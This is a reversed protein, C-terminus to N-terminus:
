WEEQLAQIIPEAQAADPEVALAPINQSQFVQQLKACNPDAADLLRITRGNQSVEALYTGIVRGNVAVDEGAEVTIGDTRALSEILEHWIDDFLSLDLETPTTTDASAEFWDPNDRITTAQQKGILIRGLRFFHKAMSNRDSLNGVPIEFVEYGLNRLEERIERDRQQRNPDGHLHQSMGDLYICIGESRESPDSYFFDPTTTGLPKGLDIPHQALANPFGARKLMDRLITEKDNVPQASGEQEATPLQSPIDHSFTLTRGWDDLRQRAKHRNLHRHYHANRFSFLCDICATECSSPCHTVVDLAAEIVESWRAIIQEILGSGGPMPDYLLADVTEEGPHGVILVQLDEVEMDLVNSAGIRIAELLSYAQERNACAQLSLTDAIVDTFFGTPQVPQGCRELHEKAFLERDADSALPSRSQGCVVCVPYGLREGSRVLNAAGVNVLRLHVGRRLHITKDDWSYAKGGNHRPQEYGFLSVAMQFRYDEDDSIQSQHPLDVDCIPIARLSAVGLGAGTGNVPTGVEVVAENTVDVQFLTTQQQPELHFFRPIFRNSNAYILNGPVYERLAIASPRPLEFDPLWGGFQRPVQATALVSGVDLGYGPLFGEAALVSYTNTDDYGEAERKKRSQIGKLKKVLRDCRQRLAEEDPDLTGKGQRVEDLQKMQALAWQLRKWVRGIVESLQNGTQQIDRRLADDSVVNADVAPWGQGFIERVREFIIGEHKSIIDSLVNVDLPAKRVLRNDDFLYHKVQQPFCLELTEKVEQRDGATLQGGSRVLQNLITLVAAHVHKQVMLPNRLNFRPPSVVGQLLKLPDNYYARDHSAQRAYTLNVAMRHQRGARGARQKYNAPLPPVNRMLVSDLGGIDVGLELTSTCVLTNVLENDSKFLRELTEREPAPVQASHERPRLMAFQQDLVMLNYDDPNESEPQITGSCRWAMCAMKPTPRIHARRCTNCRYIDQHPVLRLKDADLQRVGTCGQVAKNRKGTLTVPVLLELDETLLRWLDDFFEDIIEKDIGWRRAVQRPLTDGRDSLWQQVRSTSDGAERRLKIGKPIGPILPMYGRQIEFDGLAWFRSFIRGDRDLLINSRRTVDLLSAVGEVLTDEPIGLLQAWKTFFPKDKTLGAYEIKLRGWPELGIRQRVGTTIERLIQIRLFHRREENHKVGEAEKRAVRWVEPILARSLEDDQELIDDLYATLDGVSVAGQKIRDYMFSRLRFRRAHDQMWGAQFAADQRNDAFVLLRRREAHHIMNQALVHVDSVAIARVDRAPERYKGVGWRGTAKCAVCRDLHGPSRDKQRVALLTVLNGDRGCGDCRNRAESHLTGCHRCLYLPVTSNPHNNGSEETEEEEEDNTILRDFLVVRKGGQEGGLPKWMVRKEVAQGGGPLQGFFSFDAVHHMFYHQGCTTCTMVPLRFLGDHSNPLDSASSKKQSGVGTAADEASLWLKPRDRDRPFTVVAGSVGRVFGHIVPRLLPRNEKRSAAGLALWALVEAESVNRGVRQELDSIFETLLRPTELAQAIQFVIKNAALYEYLSEEWRDADITTGTMAEFAARVQEGNQSEVANLVQKLHAFENSSVATQNKKATAPSVPIVKGNSTEPQQLSPSWLDPEYEEGVMVVNDQPVGFFRAAFDRGADPGREPDVITASTAICTTDQTGKGCFARLRRILCATEAGSAGTFTHAEDFVLFELNAGDFLEVDRQRTLLLELQNVNTLLLRPQQGPTRMQERSVREEAPYVAYPQKERKAKEVEQRYDLKSAGEKLRKGDVDATREKTKGVYMGFSVGTGALLERLRGLQDEALANMPYVIVATIGPPAGKDRIELCRSIIPFLFCETKGSGTGTSVLTTKGQAIARIASEQHGYVNPYPAIQALHPHLTGESILDAIKAGKRFTRSLSIYPGKFLPTNRTEELNLLTRMQTYLNDDAFPYATLQYRLFDSVVKETYVIPNLM